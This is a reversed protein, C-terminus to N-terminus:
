SDSVAERVREKMQPGMDNVVEAFCEVTVDGYDNLLGSLVDKIVYREFQERDLTPTYMYTTSSKDQQLLHKKALRSMTTMITTYAVDRTDRLARHVRSVTTTGQDWVVDMIAAELPGLIKESKGQSPNFRFKINTNSAPANM